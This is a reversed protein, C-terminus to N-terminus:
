WKDDSLREAYPWYLKSQNYQTHDPHFVWKCVQWGYGTISLYAPSM